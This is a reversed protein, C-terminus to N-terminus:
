LGQLAYTTPEFGVPPEPSGWTVYGTVQPKRSDPAAPLVAAGNEGNSTLGVTLGLRRAITILGPLDPHLTPEGGTFHVENTPLSGRVAALATAFDADAAIRDPM